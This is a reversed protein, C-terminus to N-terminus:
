FVVCAPAAKVDQVFAGSKGQALKCELMISYLLNSDKVQQNDRVYKIQWHSQPLSAASSAQLEGGQETTLINVADKSTHSSAVKRICCKTSESTRFYPRDHKQTETHNSRLKWKHGKLFTSCWQMITGSIRHTQIILFIHKHYYNCSYYKVYKLIM